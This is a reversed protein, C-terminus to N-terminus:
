QVSSDDSGLVALELYVHNLGPDLIMMLFNSEICGILWFVVTVSV